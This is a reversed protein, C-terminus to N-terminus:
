DPPIRAGGPGHGEAYREGERQLYRRVEQLWKIRGDWWAVDSATVILSMLRRWSDDGALRRATRMRENMEGLRGLCALEADRVIEIMRPLDSPACFAIKALLEERVPPMSTSARMWRRFHEVGRPTAEYSTAPLSRAGRGQARFPGGQADAPLSVVNEGELSSSGVGQARPSSAQASDADLPLPGEPGVPRILGQSALRRVAHYATGHAFSASGFRRELRRELQYSNAPQEILLGLVANGGSLAVTQTNTRAMPLGTGDCVGEESM